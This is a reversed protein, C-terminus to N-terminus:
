RGSFVRLLDRLGSPINLLAFDNEDEVDNNPLDQPEKLVSVPLMACQSPQEYIFVVICKITKHLLWHLTPFEKICCKFHWLMSEM